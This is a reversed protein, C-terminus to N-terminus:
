HRDIKIIFVVANGDTYEASIDGKHAQVIAYAASLGIGYGGHKQTRASDGRYFRDFLKGADAQPLQECTNKVKLIIKHETQHLSVTVMGGCDTYKVANDFLISLLRQMYDRNAYISTNERIDMEIRIGKLAAAEYFPQISEQLLEQFSFDRMPLQQNEEDMKALTLLNQMLGHLRVTQSRINRSWKNEGSILEMADINAQIIALPTKIEHGADTVFQKQKQINRAIPRIAKRSLLIVFLLMCLWCVVAIGTSLVIVTWISHFQRSVDLFIIVTEESPQGDTNVDFSVLTYKFQDLYGGTRKKKWVQEAYDQAEKDSVSSIRSIDKRIIRGNPDTRVTFFRLSMVLDKDMPPRLLSGKTEDKQFPETESFRETEFTHDMTDPEPRNLHIETDALMALQQDTQRVTIWCNAGNIACVLVLLLVSVAAQAMLIFKKQLIKVM